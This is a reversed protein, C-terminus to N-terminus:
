IIRRKLKTLNSMGLDPTRIDDAKALQERTVDGSMVAATKMGLKNGTEIDELRDGIFLSKEGFFDYERKLYKRFIEGPKGAMEPSGYEKLALNTPGQHPVVSDTKRFDKESSCLYLRSGDKRLIDAARRLKDYSFQRDFGAVVTKSEQSVVIDRAELENLLGSEGIVYAKTVDQDELHRSLAYGATFIQEKDAPIGMSTLKKAYGERSLLTNDTHFYVNKGSGRLSEITDEAGIITSDWNRITKDLDFFFNRIEDLEM